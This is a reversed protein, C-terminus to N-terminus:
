SAAGAMVVGLEKPSLAPNPILEQFTMVLAGEGQGDEATIKFPRILDRSSPRGAPPGAEDEAGTGVPRFDDCLLRADLGGSATYREEQIVELNRREFWIRRHLYLVDGAQSSDSTFVDLRYREGEEALRIPMEPPVPAIGVIGTMALLSLRFPRSANRSRDLESVPGAFSQGTSPINLRYRGEGLVFEFLEGGFPTFGQLRLAQPKQFFVAAQVRQAFSLGPGKVQVRFLGKMTQIASARAELLQLLEQPSAERLAEPPRTMVACGGLFWHVSCVALVLARAFGIQCKLYQM